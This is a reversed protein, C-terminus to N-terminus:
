LDSEQNIERLNFKRSQMKCIAKRFQVHDKSVLLNEQMEDVGAVLVLVMGKGVQGCLFTICSV